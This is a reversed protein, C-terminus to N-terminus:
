EFDMWVRIWKLHIILRPVIMVLFSWIHFPFFRVYFSVQLYGALKNYKTTLLWHTTNTETHNYRPTPVAVAAADPLNLTFPTNVNRSIHIGQQRARRVFAREDSGHMHVLIWTCIIQNSVNKQYQVKAHWAFTKIGTMYCM